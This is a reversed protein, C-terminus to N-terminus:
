VARDVELGRTLLEPHSSLGGSLGYFGDAVSEILLVLDAPQPLRNAAM